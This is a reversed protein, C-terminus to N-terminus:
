SLVPVTFSVIADGNSDGGFKVRWSASCVPCVLLPPNAVLGKTVIERTLQQRFETSRCEACGHMTGSAQRQTLNIRKALKRARSSM